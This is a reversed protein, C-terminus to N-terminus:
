ALTEGCIRCYAGHGDATTVSECAHGDDESSYVEVEVERGDPMTFKFSPQRHPAAAMIEEETIIVSGTETKHMTENGGDNGDPIMM